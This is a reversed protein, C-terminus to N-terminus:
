VYEFLPQGQMEAPIDIKMLQLLSPAIDILTGTDRTAKVNRGIHLCPVLNKTHATHAQGTKENFMHEANGHDATIIMEIKLEKSLALLKALCADLTEIAKIAADLKGTHGVMDANAFNVVTLAYKNERMANVLKDTVEMASMEPQLDYTAVKPSPVLIRDEKEFPQERGGNLFFTVHAYKETEAIRLQSLQNNAVVEGLTNSFKQPTFIVNCDLTEDYQTLTYLDINPTAAREFDNFNKDTLAHCMERARDARFNMFVVIDDDEIPAFDDLKTPQVFEDNEDRQYAAELAEDCNSFNFETKSNTLLDYSSQVRDWRKDRDMAYFRGSMSAVKANHKTAVDELKNLSAKASRPPTDRGDLFAHIIIDNSIHNRALEILAFLHNEHSHIGGPSLLGMLHLKANPRSKLESFLKQLIENNIWSGDAIVDTIRALEQKIVRGSGIHMHGVESNGMQGEPLGVAEGSADITLYDGTKRLEDWTPTHAQSIANHESPAGEGFGDLIVLMAKHNM